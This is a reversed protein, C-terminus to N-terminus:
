PFFGKNKTFFGSSDSFFIISSIFFANCTIPEVYELDSADIGHM